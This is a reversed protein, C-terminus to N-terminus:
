PRPIRGITPVDITPPKPNSAPCTGCGKACGSSRRRTLSSWARRALWAAALAVLSLAALDQM